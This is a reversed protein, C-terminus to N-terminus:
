RALERRADKARNAGSQRPGFREWAKSILSGECNELMQLHDIREALLDDDTELEIFYQNLAVADEVKILFMFKGADDPNSRPFIACEGFQATMALCKEIDCENLALQLPILGDRKLQHQRLLADGKEPFHDEFYVLQGM